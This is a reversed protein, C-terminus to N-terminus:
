VKPKPYAVTMFHTLKDFDEDLWTRFYIWPVWILKIRKMMIVMLMSWTIMISDKFVKYGGLLKERTMGEVTDWDMKKMAAVIIM